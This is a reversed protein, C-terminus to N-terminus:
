HDTRISNDQHVSATQLLRTATHSHPRRTPAGQVPDLRYLILLNREPDDMAPFSAVRHLRYVSALADMKDDDVQNWAVYWGPHYAKVRVDLDMTGFDDCISPLGTMLSLDSGSISLVLPSHDPSSDVIQRIRNAADAFTYEPHLVYEMTQHVDTVAVAVLAAGCLLALPSYLPRSGSWAKAFVVVTLLTLPVVIVLYYRPQLNNHYAIFAAYGAIWLLLAPILPNRLLRPKILLSIVASLLALPYLLPGVWMGDSLGDGLVEFFNQSTIGTYANATFLYQYDELFHPRVIIAFYVGWILIALLSIPVGLKLAPRIRYGTRSFVLWAISPLLFIATTKTLIMLPLLIGLAMVPAWNKKLSPDEEEPRRLYSAAVMALLTLLILMPELIAMRSFVYCFPSVALLVVAVAPALSRPRDPHALAQWRRLLVYVSLLILAFIAVTLGRAAVVNVGTVRFVISELLPWVPLAAAPNFDGPVYWAGRQFHRIAADGYWGEDTYKAWDM